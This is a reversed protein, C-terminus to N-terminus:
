ASHIAAFGLTLTVAVYLCIIERSYSFMKSALREEISSRRIRAVDSDESQTAPQASDDVNRPTSSDEEVSLM